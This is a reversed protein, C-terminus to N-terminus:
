SAGLASELTEETCHPRGTECNDAGLVDGHDSSFRLSGPYVDLGGELGNVDAEGDEEDTTCQADANDARVVVWSKDLDESGTSGACSCGGRVDNSHSVQANSNERMDCIGEHHSGDERSAIGVGVACSPSEISQSQFATCWLEQSLAGLITDREVAETNDYAEWEKREQCDATTSALDQGPEDSKDGSAADDVVYDHVDSVDEEVTSALGLAEVAFM